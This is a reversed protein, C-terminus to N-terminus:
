PARHLSLGQPGSGDTGRCDARRVIRRGGGASGRPAVSGPQSLRELATSAPRGGRACCAPHSTEPVARNGGCCPPCPDHRELNRGCVRRGQTDRDNCRRWHPHACQVTQCLNRLLRGRKGQRPLCRRRLCLGHQSVPRAMRPWECCTFGLARDALARRDPRTGSGCPSHRANHSTREHCCRGSWRRRRGYRIRGHTGGQRHPRAYAAAVHAACM